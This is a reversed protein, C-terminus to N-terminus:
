TPPAADSSRTTRARGPFNGHLPVTDVHGALVVFPAGDRRTSPVAFLVADERDVM